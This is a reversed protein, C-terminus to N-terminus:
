ELHLANASTEGVKIQDECYTQFELERSFGNSSSNQKKYKRRHIREGRSVFAERDIRKAMETSSM